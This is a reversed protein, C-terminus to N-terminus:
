GNLIEIARDAHEPTLGGNDGYFETKVFFPEQEDLMDTRDDVIVYKTIEPYKELYWKIEVGRHDNSFRTPTVGIWAPLNFFKFGKKLETRSDDVGEAALKIGLKWTSSIVIKAGTEEIVRKLQDVAEPKWGDAGASRAQISKEDNLVGDIDLFILKMISKFRM